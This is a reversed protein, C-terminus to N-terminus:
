RSKISTCSVKINHIAPDKSQGLPRPIAEVPIMRGDALEYYVAGKARDLSKLLDEPVDMTFTYM